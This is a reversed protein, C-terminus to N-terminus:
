ARVATSSSEAVVASSEVPAVSTPADEVESNPTMAYVSGTPWSAGM